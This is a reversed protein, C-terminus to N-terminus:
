EDKRENLMEKVKRHRASPQVLDCESNDADIDPEEQCKSIEQKILLENSKNETSLDLALVLPDFRIQTTRQYHSQLSLEIKYVQLLQTVVGCVTVVISFLLLWM